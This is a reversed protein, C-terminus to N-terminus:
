RVKLVKPHTISEPRHNSVTDDVEWKTKDITNRILQAPIDRHEIPSDFVVVARQRAKTSVHVQQPMHNLLLQDDDVVIQREIVCEVGSLEESPM